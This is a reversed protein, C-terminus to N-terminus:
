EETNEKEKGSNYDGDKNAGLSNKLDELEQALELTPAASGYDRWHAHELTWEAGKHGKDSNKIQDRCWVIEKQKVKSLSLVLYACLSDVEHEIDIRGQQHWIDFIRHTIGNSQSALKHTSGANIDKVIDDVLKKNLKRFPHPIKYPKAQM